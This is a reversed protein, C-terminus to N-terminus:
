VELRDKMQKYKQTKEFQKRLRLRLRLRKKYNSIKESGRAHDEM